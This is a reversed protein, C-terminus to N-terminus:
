SDSRPSAPGSRAASRLLSLADARRRLEFWVRPGEGARTRIDYGMPRPGYGRPRMRPNEHRHFSDHPKCVVTPSRGHIARIAATLAESTDEGPDGFELYDLQGVLPSSPLAAVLEVWPDAVAPDPDPVVQVSLERLPLARAADLADLVVLVVDCDRTPYPEFGIHLASIPLGSVAHLVTSLDPAEVSSDVTLELIELAPLEAGLLCEFAASDVSLLRLRPLVLPERVNHM